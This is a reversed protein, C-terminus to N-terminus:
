SFLHHHIVTSFFNISLLHSILVGTITRTTDIVPRNHQLLPIAIANVITIITIIIAKISCCFFFNFFFLLVFTKTASVTSESKHACTCMCKHIIYHMHRRIYTYILANTFIHLHKYMYIYIYINTCVNQTLIHSHTCPHIFSRVSPHM